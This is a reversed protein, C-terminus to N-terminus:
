KRSTSHQSALESIPNDTGLSLGTLDAFGGRQQAEYLRWIVRLGQLSDHGGTMPANGTEICEVFHGVEGHLYKSNPEAREILEVSNKRYISLTGASRDFDAMGETGHLHFSNGLKTGRAGWTGFHYALAGNAFELVVNSTGEGEMWETGLRTGLHAGRVPKGLMWLLLDVYHCGHSFFQGGGLKDSSFMWGSEGGRDTFQETWISIQFVEGLTKDDIYQKLKLILPHFRLPYATMLVAGSSESQAILDLCEAETNALPKEMLVHKGARLCDMGISHHVDHPLVLIVGDVLGLVERYDTVAVAAGVRDAARRAKSIVTDVTAVIEVRDALKVVAREYANEMGGCGVLALRVRKSRSAM